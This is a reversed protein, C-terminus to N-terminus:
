GAPAGDTRMRKVSSAFTPTIVTLSGSSTRVARRFLAYGAESHYGQSVYVIFRENAEIAIARTRSTPIQESACDVLPGRTRLSNSTEVSHSACCRESGCRTMM